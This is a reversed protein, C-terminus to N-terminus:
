KKEDKKAKGQEKAEEMHQQSMAMAQQEMEQKKLYAL